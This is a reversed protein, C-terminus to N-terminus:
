YDEDNLDSNIALQIGFNAIEGNVCATHFVPLYDNIMELDKKTIWIDFYVEDDLKEQVIRM